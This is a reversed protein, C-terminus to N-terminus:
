LIFSFSMKNFSDFLEKIIKKTYHFETENLSNYITLLLQNYRQVVSYDEYSVIKKLKFCGMIDGDVLHSIIDLMHTQQENETLSYLQSELNQNIAEVLQCATPYMRLNWLLKKQKTFPNFDSEQILHREKHIMNQFANRYEYISYHEYIEKKSGVIDPLIGKMLSLYDLNGFFIVNGQNDKGRRGARGSMQLYEDKTFTNENMGLFCSTRVPLDIGLCLTKDSIVVSILRDTLLKQIIWNYEDPMAEIYLGIGRKLM